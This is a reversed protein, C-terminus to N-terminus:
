AAAPRTAGRADWSSSGLTAYIAEGSNVQATAFRLVTFGHARLKADRRADDRQTPTRGHGVGDIEVVLLRDPWHFDVEEDLLHTNVLPEDHTFHALYDDEGKSRTGASGSEHLEIARQLVKTRRGNARALADKAAAPDYLKRYAAQHIVYALQHATLADTLDVLMRAVRTLPIRDLMTVDRAELTRSVHVRVGERHRRKQPVVVDILSPLPFRSVNYMEACHLHGLAAGEGCAFVAALRRGHVSLGAHGVAYVGRYLQHLRGDKVRRAIGQPSLGAWLLQDFRITGHQRGAITAIWQDPTHFTRAPIRHTENWV